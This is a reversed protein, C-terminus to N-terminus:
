KAKKVEESLQRPWMARSSGSMETNGLSTIQRTCETGRLSHVTRGLCSLKSSLYFMVPYVSISFYDVVFRSATVVWFHHFPFNPWIVATM